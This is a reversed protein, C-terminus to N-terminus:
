NTPAPPVAVTVRTGLPPYVLAIAEEGITEVVYGEELRDGEAVEFSLDGRALYVIRRGDPARLSGAYRLQLAPAQPPPPDAAVPAPPVPRAVATPVPQAPMRGALIDRTAADISFSPLESPLAPSSTPGAGAGPNSELVAMQAPVPEVAAVLAPAREQTWWAALSLVVTAALAWGLSQRM